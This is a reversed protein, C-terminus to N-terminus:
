SNEGLSTLVQTLWDRLRRVEELTLDDSLTTGDGSVFIEVNNSEWLILETLGLELNLM